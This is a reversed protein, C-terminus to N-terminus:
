LGPAQRDLVWGQVHGLEPDFSGSAKLASEATDAVVDDVDQGLGFGALINM